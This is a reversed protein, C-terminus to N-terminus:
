RNTATILRVDVKTPKRAGLREFEREQLVRLLKVQISPPIEGVEDLFLTGGHAAELKGIKTAVAGTFAGREHGFLESELLTESLCACNVAVFPGDARPSGRHLARAALEKGTGSEGRLLVTSAVPAVRSIFSLLRELAPSQGVLGHEEGAASLRRNEARLGEFARATDLALGAIGAAAAALELHPETFAGVTDSEFYLLGHLQRRGSMPLALLSRVSVGRLSEAGALAPDQAVEDWLLASGEETVRTIVTRSPETKGEGSRAVIVPDTGAPSTLLAAGREAPLADFLLELLRQALPAAEGHMELAAAISLLLRLEPVSAASGGGRLLRDIEEPRRELTTRAILSDERGRPLNEEPADALFLMGVSGVQLFDGHALRRRAVPLTNVFTGHSSELDHVEHRGEVLRLECHRRSVLAELIQLDNGDQRGIRFTETGLEFSRGEQPGSVMVLKSNM